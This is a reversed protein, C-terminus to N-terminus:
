KRIFFHLITRFKNKLYSKKIKNQIIEIEKRTLPCFKSNVANEFVEDRLKNYLDAYESKSEQGNHVRDWVLDRPFKVLPFRAGIKFWFEYDGIMRKGSFGGVIKFAELNIISSGPARDFHAFKEFHELYTEKPKTISPFPKNSFNHSSLGFGAEPFQEMAWFMVQLGHPYIYDDSDLYKIYKGKAYSAAMNRNPYDGLNKENIYVKIRKDKEAYSKAIEVTKDISCDDVIILEWNQYSSAIVSEIAEGIYKERNFATMLVSVFPQFEMIESMM